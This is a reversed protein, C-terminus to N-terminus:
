FDNFRYGKLVVVSQPNSKVTITILKLRNEFDAVHWRLAKVSASSHEGAELEKDSWAKNLLDELCRNAVETAKEKQTARMQGSVSAGVVSGFALLSGLFFISAISAEIMGKNNKKHM